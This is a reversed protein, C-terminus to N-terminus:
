RNRKRHAREQLWCFPKVSPIGQESFVKADSLGGQTTKWDTMKALVGAKEFRAM